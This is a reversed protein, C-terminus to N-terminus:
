RKEDRTRKSKTDFQSSKVSKRARDWGRTRRRLKEKEENKEKEEKMWGMMIMLMRSGKALTRRHYRRERQLVKRGTM